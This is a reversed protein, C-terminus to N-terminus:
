VKGEVVDKLMRVDLTLDAVASRLRSNEQELEKMRRVQERGAGDFEQRWRHYTQESVELKQLVKGLSEGSRLLVDAEQLKRVIEEPQHRKRKAM